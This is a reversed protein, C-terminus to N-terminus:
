TSGETPSPGDAQPGIYSTAAVVDDYWHTVNEHRGSSYSVIVVYNAKLTAVSRLRLNPFDGALKGDVWFAVRGDRKGPTNAEVM